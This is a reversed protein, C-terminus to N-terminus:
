LFFATVAIVIGAAAVAMGAFWYFRQGVLLTVSVIVLSAELLLEGLDFRTGRRQQAAVEAEFARAQAQLQGAEGRYHALEKQYSARLRALAPSEKPQLAALEDLLIQDSHLRINRAQYYAWQDTARTQFLLAENHARHGLLGAAAILVALIALTVTVPVTEPEERAREAREHLEHLEEPM